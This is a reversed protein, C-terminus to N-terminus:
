CRIWVKFELKENNKTIHVRQYLGPLGDSMVQNPMRGTRHPVTVYFFTLLVKNHVTDKFILDDKKKEKSQVIFSVLM